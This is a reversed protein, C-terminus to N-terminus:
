KKNKSEDIPYDFLKIYAKQRRKARKLDIPHLLPISSKVFPLFCTIFLVLMYDRSGIINKGNILDEFNLKFEFM